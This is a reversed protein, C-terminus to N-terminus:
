VWFFGLFKQIYKVQNLIRFEIFFFNQELIRNWFVDYDGNFKGFGKQICFMTRVVLYFCTNQRDIGCGVEYWIVRFKVIGEEVQQNVFCGFLLYIISIYVLFFVLVLRFQDGFEFEVIEGFEFGGIVRLCSRRRLQYFSFFGVRIFLGLAELIRLLIRNRKGFM